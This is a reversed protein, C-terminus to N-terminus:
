GSLFFLINKKKTTTTIKNESPSIPREQKHGKMHPINKKKASIFSCKHDVGNGKTGFVSCLAM